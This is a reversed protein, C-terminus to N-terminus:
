WLLGNAVYGQVSDGVGGIIAENGVAVRVRGERNHPPSSKNGMSSKM